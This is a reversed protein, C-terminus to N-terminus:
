PARVAVGKKTLADRVARLLDAAGPTDSHVCITSACIAISVGDVTHVTREEVLQMVRQWVDEPKTILANSHSRPVLQGSALFARDAFWEPIFRVGQEQALTETQSGALGYLSVRHRAALNVVVRAHAEHTVVRNYLAGHPKVYSVLAGARHAIDALAVFQQELSVDLVSAEIDLAVRGFNARDPYSVQAGMAVGHQVAATSVAHMSAADGAHGGCAVNASTILTMLEPEPSELWPLSTEGLDCNVDFSATMGHM